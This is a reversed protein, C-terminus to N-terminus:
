HSILNMCSRILPTHSINHIPIIIPIKRPAFIPRKTIAIHMEAFFCSVSSYQLRCAAWTAHSPARTTAINYDNTLFRFENHLATSLRTAIEWKTM